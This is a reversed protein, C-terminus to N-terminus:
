RSKCLKVVRNPREAAWNNVPIQSIDLFITWGSTLKAEALKLDNMSSPWIQYADAALTPLRIIIYM